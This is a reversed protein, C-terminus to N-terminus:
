TRRGRLVRRSVLIKWIVLCDMERENKRYDEIVTNIEVREGFECYIRGKRRIYKKGRCVSVVFCLHVFGVVGFEGFFSGDDPAVGVAPFGLEGRRENEVGVVWIFHSFFFRVLLVTLKKRNGTRMRSVM